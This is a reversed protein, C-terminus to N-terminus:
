PENEAEQAETTKAFAMADEVDEFYAVKKEDRWLVQLTSGDVFYPGINWPPCTWGDGQRQWKRIM